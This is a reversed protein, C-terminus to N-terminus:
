AALSLVAMIAFALPFLVRSLLDIRRALAGREARVLNTTLIVQVIALLVMSSSLFMFTDMRTM